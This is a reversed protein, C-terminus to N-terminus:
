KSELTSSVNLRHNFKPRDHRKYEQGKKRRKEKKKKKKKEREFVWTHKYFLKTDYDKSDKGILDIAKEVRNWL